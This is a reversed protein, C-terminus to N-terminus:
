HHSPTTHTAPTGGDSGGGGSGGAAVAGGLVGVGAAIGAGITGASVGAAIAAGATAGVSISGAAATAGAFSTATLGSSLGVANMASALAAPEAVMFGGGLSAPLPISMQTASVAATTSITVGPQAALAALQAQTMSVTTGNALTMVATSEAQASADIPMIFGSMIFIGIVLISLPRLAKKM